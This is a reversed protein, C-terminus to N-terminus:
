QMPQGAALVGKGTGWPHMEPKLLGAKVIPDDKMLVATQEAGVRFISVGLLESQDSLLFPGAIALSGQDIMQKVLAHHRKVVDMFEPANPNWKEGRKLLVLTYQEMGPSEAPSHIASPDIDWPGHVEAALRGARVAPDSDAWAQAKAASEAQLVFIGRLATDDLFPGAIVLKHEAAMKRINAMHEEQLKEGAEKSLQPANAPRNLLVFFYQASASSPQAVSQGFAAATPAILCFLLVGSFSIRRM